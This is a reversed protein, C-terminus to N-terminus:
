TTSSCSDRAFGSVNVRCMTRWGSTVLDHFM